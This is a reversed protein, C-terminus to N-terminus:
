ILEDLIIKEQAVITFNMLAFLSMFATSHNARIYQVHINYVYIFGTLMKYNLFNKLNIRLLCLYETDLKFLLSVSRSGQLLPKLVIVNARIRM